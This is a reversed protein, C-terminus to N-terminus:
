KPFKKSINKLSLTEWTRILKLKIEMLNIEKMMVLILFFLCLLLAYYFLLMIGSPSYVTAIFYIILSALGIRILFIPIVHTMFKKAVYGYSLLFGFLHTFTSALAAGGMGIKNILTVILMIDIFLSLVGIYVVYRPWGAGVIVNQMVVKISLFIGGIILIRLPGAAQVYKNGYFLSICNESTAIIILSLPLVLMLLLRLSQKIHAETLMMNGEAVSKSITPLATLSLPMILYPPIKAITVASTYLGTQLNEKLIVKVALLDINMVLSTILAIIMLQLAFSFMKKSDFDDVTGLPKCLGKAMILRFLDSIILGIIVGKISFGLFVLIIVSIFRVVSFIISIFAQRGFQRLGNLVGLFVTSIGTLPITIAFLKIYSTLEPDNMLSAIQEAFIYCIGGVILSGITLIKLTGRIITKAVGEREAVFKSITEYVGKMLTLENIMILASIVGFIGYLEPGLKRGLYPHLFFSTIVFVVQSITLYITGKFM